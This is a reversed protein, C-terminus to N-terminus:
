PSCGGLATTDTVSPSARGPANRWTWAQDTQTDTVTLTYEVTTTAAAFVWHHGNVGCGDLVKRARSAVQQAQKGTDGKALLAAEFDALHKRLPRKRHAEFPDGIGVKGLEAKRVLENLMQEAATKNTCLPVPKSAGPPRGYWKASKERVKRAGPIGKSVQRGDADLYRTISKRFVKPM